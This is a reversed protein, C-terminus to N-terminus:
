SFARQWNLFFQFDQPLQRYVSDEPGAFSRLGIGVQQNNDSFSIKYTIVNGQDQPTYLLELSSYLNEGSYALRVLINDELINQPQLLRRSYAINGYVAQESFSSSSLLARQRQLLPFLRQWEKKNYASDDHWAELLVSLRNAFNIHTGVIIKIGDNHQSIMIPDETALSLSSDVLTNYRKEYHQEYLASAHFEINDNQIRSFGAGLQIDTRESFRSILHLDGNGLMRYYKLAISEDKKKDTNKTRFPNALVVSLASSTYFNEWAVIPIGELTTTFLQRRDEQQLVDLPRFGFGVGWSMIKKGLSIDHEFIQNDYYLANVLIENDPEDHRRIRNRLTIISDLGDKNYQLEIDQQSVYQHTRFINQPVAFLSDKNTREYQPTIRLTTAANSPMNLGGVLLLVSLYEATNKYATSNYNNHMSLYSNYSSLLM